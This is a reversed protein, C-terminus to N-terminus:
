SAVALIFYWPLHVPGSFQTHQHIETQMTYTGRRGDNNRPIKEPPFFPVSYFKYGKNEFYAKTKGLSFINFDGDPCEDSIWPMSSDRIHIFVDLPGDYFLSKFAYWRANLKLLPDIAKEVDKFCCLTHVNIVGDFRGIYDNRLDFWDGEEIQVSIVENERLYDRGMQINYKDYDVGLFKIDPNQKSFYHLMTGFGTGVDLVETGKILCDKEKLFKEFEITSYYPTKIQDIFGSKNIM